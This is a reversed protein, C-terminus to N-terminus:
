DKLSVGIEDKRADLMAILEAVEDPHCFELGNSYEIAKYLAQILVCVPAKEVTFNDTM